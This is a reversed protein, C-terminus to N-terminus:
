DVEYGFRILVEYVDKMDIIEDDYLNYNEFDAEDPTLGLKNIIEQADLLDINGDNNIDYEDTIVPIVTIETTKVPSYNGDDDYAYFIISYTGIETFQYTAFVTDPVPPNSILEINELDLLPTYGNELTDPIDTNPTVITAGVYALNQDQDFVDAWLQLSDYQSITIEPIVEEIVPAGGPSYLARGLRTRSAISLRNVSYDDFGDGDDDLWPVQPNEDPNFMPIGAMEAKTTEFAVEILKRQSIREYFFGSFSINGDDFMAVASNTTSTIITRNPDTIDPMFSGAYCFDSVVVIDCGTNAQLTDLWSNLSDSWVINGSGNIM